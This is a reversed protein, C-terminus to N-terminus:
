WRRGANASDGAPCSGGSLALRGEDRCPSLSARKAASTWEKRRHFNLALRGLPQPRSKALLREHTEPNLLEFGRQAAVFGGSIAEYKQNRHDSSYGRFKRLNAKQRDCRSWGSVFLAKHERGLPRLTERPRKRTTPHPANRRSKPPPKPPSASSDASSAGTM